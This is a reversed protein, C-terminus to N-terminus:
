HGLPKGPCTSNVKQFFYKSRGEKFSVFQVQFYAKGFHFYDGFWWNEPAINTELFKLTLRSPSDGFVTKKKATQDDGAGFFQFM